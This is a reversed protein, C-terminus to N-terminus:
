DRMLGGSGVIQSLPPNIEVIRYIQAPKATLLEVLWHLYEREVRSSRPSKLM